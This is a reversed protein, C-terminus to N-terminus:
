LNIGSKQVFYDLFLTLFIYSQLFFAINTGYNGIFYNHM